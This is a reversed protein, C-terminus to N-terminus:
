PHLWPQFGPKDSNFDQIKSMGQKEVDHFGTPIVRFVDINKPINNMLVPLSILEAAGPSFVHIKNSLLSFAIVTNLLLLLVCKRKLKSKM